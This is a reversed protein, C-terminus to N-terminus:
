TLISAIYTKYFSGAPCKGPLVMVDDVAIDGRFGNGRTAELLVQICSAYYTISVVPSIIFFRSYPIRLM